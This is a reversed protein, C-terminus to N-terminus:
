YKRNLWWRVAEFLLRRSWFVLLLAHGFRYHESLAVILIGAALLLADEAQFCRWAARDRIMQIREDRRAHEADRQEEPPLEQFRESQRWLILLALIGSIFLAPSLREGLANPFIPLALLPGAALLGVALAMDWKTPKQVSPRM